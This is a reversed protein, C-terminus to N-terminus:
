VPSVVDTSIYVKQPYESLRGYLYIIGNKILCRLNESKESIATCWVEFPINKAISSFATFHDLNEKVIVEDRICILNGVRFSQGNYLQVEDKYDLDETVYNDIKDYLSSFAKNIEDIFKDNFSSNKRNIFVRM